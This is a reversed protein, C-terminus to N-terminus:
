RSLAATITFGPTAVSSAAKFLCQELVKGGYMTGSVISNCELRGSVLLPLTSRGTSSRCIILADGRVAFVLRHLETRDLPGAVLRQHLVHEGAPVDVGESQVIDQELEVQEVRDRDYLCYRKALLVAADRDGIFVAQRLM